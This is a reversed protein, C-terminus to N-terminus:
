PTPRLRLSWQLTALGLIQPSTINGSWTGTMNSGDSFSNWSIIGLQLNAGNAFGALTGTLTIDGAVGTAGGVPGTLLNGGETKSMSGTLTLGSQNLSLTVQQTTGLNQACYGAVSFAVLDTCTAVTASGIWNGQYLPVTQVTLTATQAADGTATITASGVGVATATGGSDIVLANTNSSVWSVTTPTPTASLTYTQSQSVALATTAPTIASTPGTTPATPSNSNGCAGAWLAGILVTAALFRNM